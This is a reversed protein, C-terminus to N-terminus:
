GAASRSWVRGLIMGAALGVGAFIALNLLLAPVSDLGWRGIIRNYLVWLGWCLPGLMSLLIAARRGHRRAALPALVTVALALIAVVIAIVRPSVLERYANVATEGGM